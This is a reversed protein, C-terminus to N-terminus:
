KVLRLLPRRRQPPKSDGAKDSATDPTMEDCLAKLEADTIHNVRMRLDLIAVAVLHATEPNGNNALAARCEELTALVPLLREDSDFM